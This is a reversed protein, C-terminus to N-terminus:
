VWGCSPLLLLVAVIRAAAIAAIAWPPISEDFMDCNSGSSCFRWFGDLEAVDVFLAAGVVVAM